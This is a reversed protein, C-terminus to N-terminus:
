IPPCSDNLWWDYDLYDIPVQGARIRAQGQATDALQEAHRAMFDQVSNLGHHGKAFDDGFWDFIKSVELRDKQANYRNRSRDSMFHMAAAELQSDLADGVYAQPALMPCGISACNVAFHIRPETFKARIMRHEIFDLTRPKGFLKFFPQLWPLVFHKISTIGPYPGLILKVTFANYANILFALRNAESWSNYQRRSVASLEALYQDLQAENSKLKKYDVRSAHGGNILVVHDRLLADWRRHTHDFDGRSQLKNAALFVRDTLQSTKPAGSIARRAVVSQPQGEFNSIGESVRPSSSDRPSIEVAYGVGRVDSKNEPRSDIRM